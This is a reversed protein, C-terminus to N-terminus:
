RSPHPLGTSSGVGSADPTATRYARTAVEDRFRSKIESTKASLLAKGSFLTLIAAILSVLMGVYKTWEILWDPPPPFM